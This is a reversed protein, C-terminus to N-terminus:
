DAPASRGRAARSRVGPGVFAIRINRFADLTLSNNNNWTVPANVFIDGNQGVPSSLNNTAVVFNGLALQNQVFVNTFVTAGPPRTPGGVPDIYADAPDLLLTGAAGKPARLDASGTMNLTAHGSVEAFGGNGFDKGGLAYITGAFSLRDNAWVVIKGGNGRDWASADIITAADVSVTTANPITKGDLTASQNSILSKNPNGGGWDGGIMVTGGGARGSADIAAGTLEINEGTVVIKGGKTGKQFGNAALSGSVRVTQRPANGKTDATAASLVIQGNKMGVSNAEIIGSTNIVSDVVHRAAAATLEVRGGNARLIGENKVLASLPQGTAVDRVQSAIQDGVGLTILRDGYFDLTFVNGAGLAITGLNATITGSNRVGPAVLAAFGGSTATITGMNVISADPRGPIQFNFRGAMFDQNRIDSTTALFGATNIVAGAGFIIGDPNVVFVKGNANLSGLIQSPGMNGTVRNLAISNSNPQVFTTKEGVGIDFMRWNIIAKDSFQNVTVNASGAGSVTASGGVVRAGDPGAHALSLPMLATSILLLHRIRM